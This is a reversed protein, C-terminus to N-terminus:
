MAHGGIQGNRELTRADKMLDIGRFLSNAGFRALIMLVAAQLRKEKEERKPDTFLDLQYYGESERVVRNATLFMRRVTYDRSVQADWFAIVAKTIRSPINTDTGLRVTGHTSKPKRRGLYYHFYIM